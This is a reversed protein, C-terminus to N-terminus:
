VTAGPQLPEGNRTGGVRRARYAALRQNENDTGSLTKRYRDLYVFDPASFTVSQGKTYPKSGPAPSLLHEGYASNVSVHVLADAEISINRVRQAMTKAGTRAGLGLHWGQAPSFPVAINELIKVGNWTM